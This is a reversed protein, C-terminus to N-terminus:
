RIMVKGYVVAKKQAIKLLYNGKSLAKDLRVSFASGASFAKALIREGKMTFVYVTGPESMNKLLLKGDTIVIHQRDKIKSVYRVAPAVVLLVNITQPDPTSGSLTVRKTTYGTKSVRLTSGTLASDVAYAGTSDTVMSDLTEQRQGRLIVTAGAIPSGTVSDKVVGSVKFYVVKSLAFDKTRAATDLVMVTDSKALYGAASVQITYSTTRTAVKALTYKGDADTTDARTAAGMGTGISVIAGEIGKGTASDTVTGSVSGTITPSLIIDLTQATAPVTDSITKTSYDTASVSIRYVGTAVSDITYKGDADTTDRKSTTGTGMSIIAGAIANGTVSDKVTGSISSYKIANLVIDLTQATEPVTDTITKSVYNSASVNIRNVGATVSDLTYKGDADTTDRKSTMGTGISVIAGAIADGTASDKVTGSISSYKIANLVIDLTQATTPVTDTIVKSTYGTATVTVTTVGSAVSDIAYKGDADTTDRKSGAMGTGISVSAGAIAKGTASDTVTGSVKVYEIRVMKVNVTKDTGDLVVTDYKMVYQGTPHTSRIVYTGSTSDCTVSYTGSSDTTDRAVTTGAATTTTRLAIFIGALPANDANSVTGSIAAANITACGAIM